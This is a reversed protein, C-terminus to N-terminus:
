PQSKDHNSMYDFIYNYQAIINGIASPINIYTGDMLYHRLEHARIHDAFIINTIAHTHNSSIGCKFLYEAIDIYLHTINIDCRITYINGIKYYPDYDSYEDFILSYQNACDILYDMILVHMNMDMNNPLRVYNNSILLDLLHVNACSIVDCVNINQYKNMNINMNINKIISQAFEYSNPCFLASDTQQSHDWNINQLTTVHKVYKAICKIFLAFLEYNLQFTVNKSIIQDFKKYAFDISTFQTILIEILSNHSFIDDMNIKRYHYIRMIGVVRQKVLNDNIAEQWSTPQNKYKLPANILNNTIIEDIKQQLLETNHSVLLYARFLIYESIDSFIDDIETKIEM